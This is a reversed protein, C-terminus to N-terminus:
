GVKRGTLKTLNITEKPRDQIEVLHEQHHGDPTPLNSWTERQKPEPQSKEQQQSKARLAKQRCNKCEGTKCLAKSNVM